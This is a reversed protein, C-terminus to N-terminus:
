EELKENNAKMADRVEVREGNNYAIVFCDVKKDKRL